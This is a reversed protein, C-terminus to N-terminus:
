SKFRKTVIVILVILLLVASVWPVVLAANSSHVGNLLLIRYSRKTLITSHFLSRLIDHSFINRKTVWIPPVMGSLALGGPFTDIHGEIPVCGSIYEDVSNNRILYAMNGTSVVSLNMTASADVPKTRSYVMWGLRIIGPHQEPFPDSTLERTWEVMRGNPKVDDEFVLTWGPKHKVSDWLLLHSQACGVAGGTVIMEAAKQSKNRLINMIITNSVPYPLAAFDSVSTKPGRFDYAQFKQLGPFQKRVEPSVNEFDRDALCIAHVSSLGGPLWADLMAQATM